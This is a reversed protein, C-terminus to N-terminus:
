RKELKKQEKKYEKLGQRYNKPKFGLTSEIGSLAGNWFYFLMSKRIDRKCYIEGVKFKTLFFKRNNSKLLLNNALFSLIGSGIGGKKGTKKNMLAIKINRYPFRLEGVAFNTNGNMTLEQIRGKGKKISVGFLNETMNNFLSFNMKSMSASLNFTDRPHNIPMNLNLKVLGENMLMADANVILAAGNQLMISDNTIGSIKASVQNLYIEGEERSGKIFESYSVFSNTLFVSDIQLNIPANRLDASYVSKRQWDPFLVLKNRFAHIRFSDLIIREAIIKDEDLIAAFNLGEIDIREGTVNMRDTQYGLKESFKFKPFNPIMAFKDIYLESTLTSFSIEKGYVTYLSDKTLLRYDEIKMNIDDSYLLRHKLSQHISDVLFNKISGSIRCIEVLKATDNHLKTSFTFNGLDINQIHVSGLSKKINKYLDIKFKKKEKKSKLGSYKSLCLDANKLEINRIDIKKYIQLENFNFGKIELDPVDLDVTHNKKNLDLFKEIKLSTDPRISFDSLIITSDLSSVQMKAANIIHISDAAFLYNDYFTFQLEEASLPKNEEPDNSNNSTINKMELNLEGKYFVNKSSSDKNSMVISGEDILVQTIDISKLFKPVSFSKAKKEKELNVFEENKTLEIQPKVLEISRLKISNDNYFENFDFNNFSIDPFSFKYYESLENLKDASALSSLYIKDFILDSSKTSVSINKAFLNHVKDPFLFNLSDIQIKINDSFLIRDIDKLLNQDYRFDSIDVSFGANSFLVFEKDQMEYLKFNADNVFFNNFKVTGNYNSLLDQVTIKLPKFDNNKNSKEIQLLKIDAQELIVDNFVIEDERIAKILDIENFALYKATVDLLIPKGTRLFVNDFERLLLPKMKIGNINLKKEQTSINVEDTTFQYYEEYLLLSYNRLFLEIDDVDFVDEDLSELDLVLLNFNGSTNLKEVGNNKKNINFEGNNILVSDIKFKKLLGSSLQNQKDDDSSEINLKVVADAIQLKQLSFKNNIIEQINIGSISIKPISIDFKSGKNATEEGIDVVPKMVISKAILENGVSSFSVNGANIKHSIQSLNISYSNINLHINESFFIKNNRTVSLSDVIFNEINLSLNNVVVATDFNEFNFIEMEGEYICIDNISIGKFQNKILSYLDINSAASFGNEHSNDSKKPFLKVHPQSIIISDIDFFSDLLVKNFDIGNIVLASIKVDTLTSSIEHMSTDEPCLEIKTAKILSDASFLVLEDINIDHSDKINWHFDHFKVIVNDSFLFREENERINSDIFIQQLEITIGEVSSSIKKSKEQLLDFNGNNILINDIKLFSLHKTILSQIKSEIINKNIAKLSDKNPYKIITIFPENILVKSVSLNKDGFLNKIDLRSVNIEDIKIDFLEKELSDIKRLSSYILTDPKLHVDKVNFTNTRYNFDLDSFHLTYLGKSKNEVSNKIINSIIPDTIFFLFAIFIFIISFIIVLLRFPIRSKKSKTVKGKDKKSKSM